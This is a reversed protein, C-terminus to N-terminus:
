TTAVAGPARVQANEADKSSHDERAEATLQAYFAKFAAEKRAVTTVESFLADVRAKKDLLLPLADEEKKDPQDYSVHRALLRGPAPARPGPPQDYSVHRALLRGPAPALPGPLLPLADERAPLQDPTTSMQAHVGAESQSPLVAEALRKALWSWHSCRCVSGISCAQPHPATSFAASGGPRALRVFIWSLCFTGMWFISSLLNEVVSSRVRRRVCCSPLSQCSALSGSRSMSLGFDVHERSLAVPKKFRGTRSYLLRLWWM